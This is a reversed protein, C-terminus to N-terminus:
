RGGFSLWSRKKKPEVMPQLTRDETINTSRTPLEANILREKRAGQTRSIYDEFVGLIQKEIGPIDEILMDHKTAQCRCKELAIQARIRKVELPNVVGGFRSKQPDNYALVREDTLLSYICAYLANKYRATLASQRVYELIAGMYQSGSMSKAYRYSDETFAPRNDVMPSSLGAYPDLENYSYPMSDIQTDESPM